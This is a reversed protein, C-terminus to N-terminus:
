IGVSEDERQEVEEVLVECSCVQREAGVSDDAGRLFGLDLAVLAQQVRPLGPRLPNGARIPPELLRLVVDRAINRQRKPPRFGEARIWARM